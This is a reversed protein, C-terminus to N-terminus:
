VMNVYSKSSRKLKKDKDNPNSLGEEINIAQNLVELARELIPDM